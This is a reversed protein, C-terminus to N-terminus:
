SYKISEIKINPYKKNRNLKINQCVHKSLNIVEGIEDYNSYDGIKTWIIKDDKTNSNLNMYLSFLKKSRKYTSGAKRGRPM